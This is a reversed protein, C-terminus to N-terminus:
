STYKMYGRFIWIFGVVLPGWFFLAPGGNEAASQTTVITVIGGCVMLVAGGIMDNRGSRKKAKAKALLAEDESVGENRIKDMYDAM